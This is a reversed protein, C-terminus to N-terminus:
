ACERDIGVVQVDLIDGKQVSAVRVLSCLHVSIFTVLSIVSLINEFHNLFLFYIIFLICCLFKQFHITFHIVKKNGEATPQDNIKSYHELNM